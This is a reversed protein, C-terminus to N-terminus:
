QLRADEPAVLGAVWQVAQATDEVVAYFHRRVPGQIAYLEEDNRAMMYELYANNPRVLATRFHLSPYGLALSNRLITAQQEVQWENLIWLADEPFPLGEKVDWVTRILGQEQYAKLAAAFAPRVEEPQAVGVARFYLYPVPEHVALVTINKGDYLLDAAPSVAKPVQM